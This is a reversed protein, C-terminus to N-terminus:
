SEIHCVFGHDCGLGHAVTDRLERSDITFRWVDLNHDSFPHAMVSETVDVVADGLTQELALEDGNNYNIAVLDYHFPNRPEVADILENIDAKPTESEPEGAAVLAKVTAKASQALGFYANPPDFLTHDSYFEADGLMDSYGDADMEVFFHTSTERVVEDNRGLDRGWHDEAFRKPLKYTKTNM